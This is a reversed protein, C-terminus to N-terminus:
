VGKFYTTSNEYLESYAKPRHEHLLFERFDKLCEQYLIEDIYGRFYQLNLFLGYTILVDVACYDEIKQINKEQFFETQVEAGNMGEMKGSLGIAKAWANLSIKNSPCLYKFLDFTKDIAFPSRYSQYGTDKVYAEIPCPVKHKISRHELVPLDFQHINYGCFTVPTPYHPRRQYGGSVANKDYWVKNYDQYKLSFNWFQSILEKEELLSQEYDDQPKLSKKFGDYITYNQPDIFLAGISVVHHYLSPFFTINHTEQIKTIIGLDTWDKAEHGYVKAILPIDPVTEIDFILIPAPPFSSNM